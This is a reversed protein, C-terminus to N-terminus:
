REVAGAGSAQRELGMDSVGRRACRAKSDKKKQENSSSHRHYGSDCRALSRAKVVKLLLESLKADRDVTSPSNGFSSKCFFFFIFSALALDCASWRACRASARSAQRELDM